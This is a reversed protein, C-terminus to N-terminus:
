TWKLVTIVSSCLVVSAYILRHNITQLMPLFCIGGGGGGGFCSKVIFSLPSPFLDDIQRGVLYRLSLVGDHRRECVRRDSTTQAGCRESDGSSGYHSARHLSTAVGEFSGTSARPDSDGVM